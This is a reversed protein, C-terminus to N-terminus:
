LEFPDVVGDKVPRTVRKVKELTVARESDRDTALEVKTDKFGKLKLVLKAMGTAKDVQFSYPTKGVVKGDLFVDAGAPTSTVVLKVHQVVPAVPAASTVPAVPAPLSVPAAKPQEVPAVPKAKTEIVPAPPPEIAPIAASQTQPTPNGGGLQTVLVVVGAGLGVTAGIIMPILRRRSGGRASPKAEVQSATGGMTTTTLRPQAPAPATASPDALLQTQYINSPKPHPGTQPVPMDFSGNHVITQQVHVQAPPPPGGMGPLPTHQRIRQDVSSMGAAPPMRQDVSSQGAAPPMRMDVSGGGPLPTHQRIRQDMSGSGASPDHMMTAAHNTTPRYGPNTNNFGPNTNQGPYNQQNYGSGTQQGPTTQIQAGFAKMQGYLRASVSQAITDFASGVEQMSQWREAPNKALCRMILADLPPPITRDLQSPPVPMEYIHRALVEGFGDGMIPPRGVALEYLICGFSYIDARWDVNGSGRCQEPSMYLPTGLVSGTRTKLSNKALEGALKAIGFDLIKARVGFPADADACLFINDPKLDRHVIERNHAAQVASTIQKGLALLMAVSFRGGESALRATMTEGDLYEMVIYAPGSPHWGFDYIEVLAPHRIHSTARAENFFRNVMEADSCLEKLLVKVAAKRGILPHEALYVIGMGGEGLKGTIRYSGVSEGIM